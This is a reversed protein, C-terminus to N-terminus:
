RSHPPRSAAAHLSASFRRASSYIVTCGDVDLGGCIQNSLAKAVDQAKGSPVTIAIATVVSVVVKVTESNGPTTNGVAASELFSLLESATTAGVDSLGLSVVSTTAFALPAFPPPVLTAAPAARADTRFNNTAALRATSASPSSSQWQQDRASRCRGHSRPCPFDHRHHLDQIAM